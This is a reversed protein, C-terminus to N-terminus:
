ERQRMQKRLYSDLDSYHWHPRGGLDFPKPLDGSTVLERFKTEGIDLFECASKITFAGRNGVGGSIGGAEAMLAFAQCLHNMIEQFEVAM